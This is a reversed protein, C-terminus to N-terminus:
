AVLWNVILGNSIHVSHTVSASMDTFSRTATLGNVGGYTWSSTQAFSSTGTFNSNSASITLVTADNQDTFTSGGNSFTGRIKGDVNILLSNNIRISQTGAGLM